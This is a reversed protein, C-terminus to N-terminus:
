SAVASGKKRRTVIGAVAAALGTWVLLASPEPLQEQHEDPVRILQDQIHVNDSATSVLNMIRVEGIGTWGSVAYNALWADLFNTELWAVYAASWGSGSQITSNLYNMGQWIGLQLANAQDATPSAFNFGALGTPSANEDTFQTYLWATQEGLPNNNPVTFANISLVKYPTDYNMPEELQVCFTGFPDTTGDSPETALFIGGPGGVVHALQIVDGPLISAAAPLSATAVLTLACLTVLSRTSM